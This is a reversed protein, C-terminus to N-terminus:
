TKRRSFSQEFRDRHSSNQWFHRNMQPIGASVPEPRDQSPRKGHTVEM